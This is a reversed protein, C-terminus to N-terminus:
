ADSCALCVLGELWRILEQDAGGEPFPWPKGMSVALLYGVVGRTTKWTQVWIAHITRHM